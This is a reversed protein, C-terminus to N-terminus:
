WSNPKSIGNVPDPLQHERLREASLQGWWHEGAGENPSGRLDGALQSPGPKVIGVPVRKRAERVPLKLDSDNSVIVAADIEKQLVDLILHTGVNVDSGKEEQHLYSVMFTAQPLDNGTAFDKLMLPWEPQVVTPRYTSPVPRVLPAFKARSVFNGFEILDVSGHAKLARIYVAQDAASSPNRAGSVRATCYIVRHLNAGREHWAHPLVSEILSRIDLWRWGETGRGCLKRAGYYLNFGDVYVGVRM